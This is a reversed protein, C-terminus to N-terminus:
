LDCVPLSLGSELGTRKAMEATQGSLGWGPDSGSSGATRDEGWRTLTQPRVRQIGPEGGERPGARGKVRGKDPGVRMRFRLVM